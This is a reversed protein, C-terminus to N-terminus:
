KSDRRQLSLVGTGFTTVIVNNFDIPNFVISQPTRGPYSKYISFSKGFDISYLLGINEDGIFIINRDGPHVAVVTVAYADSDVKPTRPYIREWTIGDNLTRYLGGQHYKGLPSTASVYIVRPDEPDFCMGTAHWGLNQGASINQWSDGGDVSKWLGGPITFATEMTSGRLGTILCYLAKTVPHFRLKYIHLNRFGSQTDFIGLGNSASRWTRGGDTSKYVGAKDDDGEGFVGAYIIRQDPPSDFDVAITTCVQSPLATASESGSLVNWNQGHDKSVVVGGKKHLAYSGPRIPRLSEEYPIDHLASAAAYLRGVVASDLVVDYFTNTWPSGKASWAWSKGRDTSSAFGIDTYAIYQKNADHPDFYFGWASTVELGISKNTFGSAVELSSIPEMMIQQWSKGSDVSRYIDGENAVILMRPDQPNVTFGYRTIYYGWKLQTQVWSLEVNPNEMFACDEKTMRFISEWSKGGDSSKLIKTNNGRGTQAAFILQTNGSVMQLVTEEAFPQKIIGWSKGRDDSKLLGTPKISVILSETAGDSAGTIAKIEGYAKLSCVSAWTAGNDTSAWLTAAKDTAYVVNAVQIVDTFQQEHVKLWHKAHDDTRWLGSETGVLLIDKQGTVACLSIIKAKQWPPKTLAFWSIGKDDSYRLEESTGRPWYIRNHFYVPRTSSNMRILNGDRHILEWKTGNNESRFTASMDTALLVLGSDFPSFSPGYMAGGGGLGLVSWGHDAYRPVRPFKDPNAIPDIREGDVRAEAPALQGVANQAYIVCGSVFNFQLLLMLCVLRNRMCM